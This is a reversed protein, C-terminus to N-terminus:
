GAESKGQIEGIIGPLAKKLADFNSFLDSEPIVAPIVQLWSGSILRRLGGLVTILSVAVGAAVGGVIGYGIEELVISIAHHAKIAGDDGEAM